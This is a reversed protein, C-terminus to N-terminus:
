KRFANVLRNFIYGILFAVFFFIFCATMYHGQANLQQILPAQLMNQLIPFHLLYIGYENKGIVQLFRLYNLEKLMGFIVIIGAVIVALGSHWLYSSINDVYVGYRSGMKGWLILIFIMVALYLIGKIASIKKENCIIFDGIYMGIVFNDLATFM